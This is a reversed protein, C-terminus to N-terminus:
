LVLLDQFEKNKKCGSPSV